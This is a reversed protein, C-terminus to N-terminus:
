RGHEVVREDQGDVAGIEVSRRAEVAPEVARACAHRGAACHSASRSGGDVLGAAERGELAEGELQAVDDAALRQGAVRQERTSIPPRVSSAKSGAPRHFLQPHGRAMPFRCYRAMPFRGRAMPFRFPRVWPVFLSFRARLKSDLLFRVKFLARAIHFVEDAVGCLGERRGCASALGVASASAGLKRERRSSGIITAGEVLLAADALRRQRQVEGAFPRPLALADRQDVRVRLARREVPRLLARSPQGPQEADDAQGAVRQVPFRRLQRAVGIM